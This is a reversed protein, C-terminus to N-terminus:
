AVGKLEEMQVHVAGLERWERPRRRLLDEVVRALREFDAPWQCHCRPCGFRGGGGGHVHDCQLEPPIGHRPRLCIPATGGCRCHLVVQCLHPNRAM